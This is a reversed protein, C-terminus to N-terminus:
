GSSVTSGRHTERSGRAHRTARSFVHGVDARDNFAGVTRIRSESERWELAVAHWSHAELRLPSVRAVGSQSLRAQVMAEDPDPHRGPKRVKNYFRPWSRAM